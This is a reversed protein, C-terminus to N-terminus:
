GRHLDLGPGLLRVLVRLCFSVVNLITPVSARCELCNTKESYFVARRDALGVLLWCRIRARVSLMPSLRVSVQLCDWATLGQCAGLQLLLVRSHLLIPALRDFIDSVYRVEAICYWSLSPTLLLLPDLRSPSPACAGIKSCGLTGSVGRVATVIGASARCFECSFSRSLALQFVGGRQYRWLENSTTLKSSFDHVFLTFQIWSSRHPTEQYLMERFSRHCLTKAAQVKKTSKGIESCKLSYERSIWHSFVRDTSQSSFRVPPDITSISTHCITYFVVHVSRTVIKLCRQCSKGISGLIGLELLTLQDYELNCCFQDGDRM